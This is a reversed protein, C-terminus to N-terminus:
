IGPRPKEVEISVPLGPRVERVRDIMRRTEVPARGEFHVWDLDALDIAAFAVADFEDLRRDHVITRSGTARSHWVYSTPTVGDDFWRADAHAIGRRDLDAVIEAAAADRALSGAWRTRHGLRALVALTNAANGGRVHRSSLARRKADEAPYRELLCVIDLTAVGVALIRAV